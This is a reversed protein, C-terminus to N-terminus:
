ESMYILVLPRGMDDVDSVRVQLAKFEFSAGTRFCQVGQTGRSTNHVQTDAVFIAANNHLSTWTVGDGVLAQHIELTLGSASWKACTFPNKLLAELRKAISAATVATLTEGWPGEELPLDTGKARMPWEIRHKIIRRKMAERTIGLIEAAGAITGALHLARTVLATECDDLRFSNMSLTPM